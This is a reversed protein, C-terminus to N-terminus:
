NSIFAFSLNAHNVTISKNAGDAACWVEFYDDGDSVVFGALSASGVDGGSGLKREFQLLPVLVGNEYVGCHYNESNSGAFSIALDAHYRGAYDLTIRDNTVIDITTNISEGAVNFDIKNYTGGAGLDAITTPTTTVGMEAVPAHNNLHTISVLIVGQATANMAHGIQTAHAPPAPKVNTLEGTVSSVYLADGASWTEGGPGSTDVGRVLGHQTIVGEENNLIDYTVLGVGKSATETDADCLAVTPRNGQAGNIYVCDGDSLTSGTKNLARIHMEQGTQLTVGDIDTMIDLTADEDNWTFRAERYAPTDQLLLFDYYAANGAALLTAIDGVQARKTQGDQTLSFLELGDLADAAPFLSVPQAMVTGACLLIAGMISLVLKKM